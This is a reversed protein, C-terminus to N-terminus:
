FKSHQGESPHGHTMGDRLSVRSLTQQSEQVELNKEKMWM